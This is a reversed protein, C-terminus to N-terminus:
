SPNSTSPTQPTPTTPCPDTSFRTTRLHRVTSAPLNRTLVWPAFVRPVSFQWTNHRAGTLAHCAAPAVSSSM